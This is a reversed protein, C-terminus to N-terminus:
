NNNNTRLKKIVMIFFNLDKLDNKTNTKPKYNSADYEDSVLLDGHVYSYIIFVPKLCM